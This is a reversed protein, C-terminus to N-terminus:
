ERSFNSQIIFIKGCGVDNMVFSIVIFEHQLPFIDFKYCILWLVIQDATEPHLNMFNQNCAKGCQWLFVPKILM